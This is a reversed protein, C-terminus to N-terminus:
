SGGRRVYLEWASRFAPAFPPAEHLETDYYFERILMGITRAASPKADKGPPPPKNEYKWGITERCSIVLEGIRKPGEGLPLWKGAFCVVSIDPGDGPAGSEWGVSLDYAEQAIAREAAAQESGTEDPPIGYGAQRRAQLDTIKDGLLNPSIVAVKGVMRSMENDLKEFTGKAGLFKKAAFPPTQAHAPANHHIITYYKCSPALMARVGAFNGGNNRMVWEYHTPLPDFVRVISLAVGWPGWKILEGMRLRDKTSGTAEKGGAGFIVRTDGDPTIACPQVFTCGEGKPKPAEPTGGVGLTSFGDNTLYRMVEAKGKIVPEDASVQNFFCSRLTLTVHEDMMKDLTLEAAADAAASQMTFIRHLRIVNYESGDPRLRQGADLLGSAAQPIKGGKGSLLEEGGGYKLPLAYVTPPGDPRGPLLRFAKNLEIPRESDYVVALELKRLMNQKAVGGVGNMVLDRLLIKSGGPPPSSLEGQIARLDGLSALTILKLLTQEGEISAQLAEALKTTWVKAEEIFGGKVGQAFLVAAKEMLAEESDKAEGRAKHLWDEAMAMAMAQSRGAAWETANLKPVQVCPKRVILARLFRKAPGEPIKGSGIIGDLTRGYLTKFVSRTLDSQEVSVDGVAEAVCDLLGESDLKSAVLIDASQSLAESVAVRMKKIGRSINGLAFQPGEKPPRMTTCSQAAAQVLDLLAGLAEMIKGVDTPTPPGLTLTDAELAAGEGRLAATLAPDTPKAGKPTAARVRDILVALHTDIGQLQKAKLYQGDASAAEKLRDNETKSGQSDSGKSAAAWAYRALACFCLMSQKSPTFNRPPAAVADSPAAAEPEEPADPDPPPAPPKLGLMARLMEDTKADYAAPDGVPLVGAMRKPAATRLMCPLLALWMNMVSNDLAMPASAAGAPVVYPLLNDKADKSPPAHVATSFPPVGICGLQKPSFSPSVIWELRQELLEGLATASLRSPIQDQLPTEQYANFVHMNLAAAADSRQALGSILLDQLSSIKDNAVRLRAAVNVPNLSEEEDALQSELLTVWRYMAAPGRKLSNLVIMAHKFLLCENPKNRGDLEAANPVGLCCYAYGGRLEATHIRKQQLFLDLYQRADARGPRRAPARPRPPCWAGPLDSLGHRTPVDKSGGGKVLNMKQFLSHLREAVALGWAVQLPEGVASCALYRTGEFVDCEGIQYEPEEEESGGRMALVLARLQMQVNECTKMGDPGNARKHLGTLEELKSKAGTRVAAMPSPAPPPCIVQGDPDGNAGKNKKDIAMKVLQTHTLGVTKPVMFQGSEADLCAGPIAWQTGGWRRPVFAADFVRQVKMGKTWLPPRLRFRGTLKYRDDLVCATGPVVKGGVPPHTPEGSIAAGKNGAAFAAAVAQPDTKPTPPIARGAMIQKLRRAVKSARKFRETLLSRAQQQRVRRRAWLLLVAAVESQSLPEGNDAPVVAESGKGLLNRLMSASFEMEPVAERLSNPLAAEAAKLQARLAAEKLRNTPPPAAPALTTPAPAPASDTFGVSKTMAAAAPAQAAAAEKEFAQRAKPKPAASSPRDTAAAGTQKMLMHLDASGGSGVSERPRSLVQQLVDFISQTLEESRAPWLTRESMNEDYWFISDAKWGPLQSQAHTILKKHLPATGNPNLMQPLEAVVLEWNLTRREEGGEGDPLWCCLRLKVQASM